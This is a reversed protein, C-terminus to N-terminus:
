LPPKGGLLIALIGIIMNCKLITSIKGLNEKKSNHHLSLIAFLMVGNFPFIVKLYTLNYIRFLYPLFTLVILSLYIFIATSLAKEKGLALPLTRAQAQLDGEMDEIDKVIERGLHYFFAFFTPIVIPFIRGTVLGGLVFPASAVLSVIINGSLGRAKFLLSYLIVLTVSLVVLLFCPLPLFYGGVVAVLFLAVAILLVALKSISGSALPRQPKNIRDIKEDVLDNVANGGGAVVLAITAALFIEVTPSFTGTILAALIVTIFGMVANVPRIIRLWPPGYRVM